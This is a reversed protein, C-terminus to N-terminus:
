FSNEAQGNFDIKLLDDSFFDKSRDTWTTSYLCKDKLLHHTTFDTVDTEDTGFMPQFIYKQTYCTYKQIHFKM